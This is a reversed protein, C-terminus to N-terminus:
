SFYFLFNAKLFITFSFDYLQIMKVLIIFGFLIRYFNLIFVEKTLVKLVKTFSSHTLKNENNSFHSSIRIRRWNKVSMNNLFFKKFFERWRQLYIISEFLSINIYAFKRWNRVVMRYINIYFLNSLIM